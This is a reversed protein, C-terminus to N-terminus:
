RNPEVGCVSYSPTHTIDNDFENDTEETRMGGAAIITDENLSSIARLVRNM